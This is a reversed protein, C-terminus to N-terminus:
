WDILSVQEPRIALIRPNNQYRQWISEPSDVGSKRVPPALYVSILKCSDPAVTSIIELATTTFGVITQPVWGQAVITDEVSQQSTLARLGTIERLKSVYADGERRHPIYVPELGAKKAPQHISRLLSFYDTETLGGETVAPQGLIWCVRERITLHVKAKLLRKNLVSRDPWTCALDEFVTFFIIPEKRFLIPRALKFFQGHNIRSLYEHRKRAIELTAFGDDVVVTEPQRTLFLRLFPIQEQPNGTVVTSVRRFQGYSLRVQWLMTLVAKLRGLIPRNFPASIRRSTALDKQDPDTAGFENKALPNQGSLLWLNELELERALQLTQRDWSVEGSLRLFFFCPANRNASEELYALANRLQFPSSVLALVLASERPRPKM